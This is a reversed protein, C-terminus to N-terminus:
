WLLLAAGAPRGKKEFRGLRRFAYSEAENTVAEITRHRMYLGLGIAAVSAGGWKLINLFDARTIQQTAKSSDANM